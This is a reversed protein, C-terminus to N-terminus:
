AGMVYRHNCCDHGQMLTKTRIMKMKPNFAPAYAFDGHCVAAYGIDAANAERFTKAWLCETVKIEAAKATDEVFEFTLVHRYFPDNTKMPAMFAALDNKGLKKTQEKAAQVGAQSSAKKLLADFKDKGLEEALNKLLPIFGGYAFQYVQEYTMESKESFKHKAPAASARTCMLACAPFITFLLERRDTTM